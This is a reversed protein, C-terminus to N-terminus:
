EVRETTQSSLRGSKVVFGLVNISYPYTAKVTVDGGQAWSHTGKVPDYPDVSIELDNQRLDSAAGKVRNTTASVPDDLSRSVAAQRAGARVADTLTLYHNALIGLQVLGFVLMLLIPAVLIFEVMAQGTQDRKIHRRFM